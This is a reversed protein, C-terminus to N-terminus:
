SNHSHRLRRTACHCSRRCSRRAFGPTGRSSRSSSISCHYSLPTLMVLSFLISCVNEQSRKYLPHALVEASSVPRRQPSMLQRGMDGEPLPMDDSPPDAPMGMADAGDAPYESLPASTLTGGRAAGDGATGAVAAAAASTVPNQRFASQQPPAMQLQQQQASAAALAAAYFQQSQNELFAIKHRDAELLEKKTQLDAAMIRAEAQSVTAIQTLEDRQQKVQM